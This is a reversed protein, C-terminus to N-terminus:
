IIKVLKAYTLWIFYLILIIISIRNFYIFFKEIKQIAESIIKLSSAILFNFLVFSLPYMVLNILLVNSFEPM